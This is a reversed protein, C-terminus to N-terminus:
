EEELANSLGMDHSRGFGGYEFEWLNCSKWLRWIGFKLKGSAPKSL